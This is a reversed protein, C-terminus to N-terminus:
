KIWGNKYFFMCVSERGKLGFESRIEKVFTQITRVSIGLEVAMEEQRRGIALMQVIQVQKETPKQREM